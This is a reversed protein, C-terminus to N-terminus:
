KKTAMKFELSNICLLVFMEFVIKPLYKTGAASHVLVLKLLKISANIKIKVKVKVSLALIQKKKQEIGNRNSVCIFTNWILRSPEDFFKIIM